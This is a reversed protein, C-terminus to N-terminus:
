LVRAFKRFVWGRIRNPLLIQVIFRKLINGLYTKRNIVSNKLMYNQLQYESKFYAWGGRRQYMDEGVRVKVLTDNINAFCMDKLYMRIWLYYDENCYWDLYGGARRVSKKKFMVTMQNMPCRKKLYEKIDDDTTPVIRKSVIIEPNIVFEEINGGVIDLLDNEAFLKFQKEFRDYVCIDDADMLAVLDYKCNDLGIRRANGHGQNEKLRVVRFDDLNEYDSVINDLENPIPGDVVLVIEAPKLSQNLISNVAQQFWEPNDKEYVCMSVSFKNEM